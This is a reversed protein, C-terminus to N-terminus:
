RQPSSQCCPIKMPLAVSSIQLYKIEPYQDRRPILGLIGYYSLRSVTETAYSTNTGCNDRFGPNSERPWYGSIFMDGSKMM